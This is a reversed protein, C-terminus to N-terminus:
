HVLNDYDIYYFKYNLLHDELVFKPGNIGFFKHPFIYKCNKKFEYMENLYCSMLSFSSNACIRVDSLCMMYFQEEDETYLTNADIFNLNLDKLKEKAGVIDDSFLIVQYKDLNYYSLAKKYYEIPPM